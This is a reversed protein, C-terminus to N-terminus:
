SRWSAYPVALAPCFCSLALCSLVDSNQAPPYPKRMARDNAAVHEIGAMAPVLSAEMGMVLVVWAGWVWIGSHRDVVHVAASLRDRGLLSPSRSSVRDHVRTKARTKELAALRGVYVGIRVLGLILLVELFSSIDVLVSLLSPM